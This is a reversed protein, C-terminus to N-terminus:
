TKGTVIGGSVVLTNDTAKDFTGTWGDTGNINFKSLAKVIVSQFTYAGVESSSVVLCSAGNYTGAGANKGNVVVGVSAVNVDLNYCTAGGSAAFISDGTLVTGGGGGVAVGVVAGGASASAPEFYTTFAYATGVGAVYLSCATGTFAGNVARVQLYTDILELTYGSGAYIGYILDDADSIDADLRLRHTYFESAAQLDIVKHTAAGVSDGTLQYSITMGNIRLIGAGTVSIANATLGNTASSIGIYIDELSHTGTSMAIVKLASTTTALTLKLGKVRCSTAPLTLLTGTAMAIEVGCGQNLGFPSMGVLDVYDKCVVNEAYVGPMILVTYRKDAAADTIADIADQISTYEAGTKAVVYCNTYFPIGQAAWAILAVADAGTYEHASPDGLMRVSVREHGSVTSLINYSAARAMNIYTGDSLQVYDLPQMTVGIWNSITTVDTGAVLKGGAFGRLRVTGLLSAPRQTIDQFAEVEELNLFSGNQMQVFRSPM